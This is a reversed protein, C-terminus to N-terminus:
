FDITTIKLAAWVRTLIRETFVEALFFTTLTTMEVVTALTKINDANGWSANAL